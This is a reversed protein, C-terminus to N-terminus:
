PLMDDGWDERVWRMAQPRTMAMAMPRM